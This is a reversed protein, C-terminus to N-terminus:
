GLLPLYGAAPATRRFQFAETVEGRYGLCRRTFLGSGPARGNLREVPGVTDKWFQIGQAIGTTAQYHIRLAAQHIIGPKDSGRYNPHSYYERRGHVSGTKKALLQLMLEYTQVGTRAPDKTATIPSVYDCPPPQLRQWNFPKM